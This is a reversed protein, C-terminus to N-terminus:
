GEVKMWKGDEQKEYKQGLGTGTRLVGFKGWSLPTMIAWQGWKTRGDYFVNELKDGFDDERYNLTKGLMPINKEVGVDGTWYMRKDATKMDRERYNLMKGLTPIDKM